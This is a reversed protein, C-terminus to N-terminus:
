YSVYTNVTNADPDTRRPVGVSANGYVEGTHRVRFRPNTDAAFGTIVAPRRKVYNANGGVTKQVLVAAHRNTKAAWGVPGGGSSTPGIIEVAAFTWSQLDPATLGVNYSGASTTAARAFYFVGDSSLHGDWLAEESASLLYARTTPDKSLADTSCWSIVSQAQTTVVAVQPLGSGSVVANVAGTTCGPSWRQVVASHRSGAVTGGVTVAMSGDGGILSTDITAQDIRAYGFFGAPQALKKTTYNQGGGVSAGAPQDRSWTTVKIEILENQAPTFSPTVLNSTDAGSSHMVYTALLVPAPV